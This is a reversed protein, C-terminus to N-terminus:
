NGLGADLIASVKVPDHGAFAINGDPDILVMFPIAKFNYDRSVNGFNEKSLQFQQWDMKEYEMAKRWAADEEDLSVAYIGLRDGYKKHLERVHPIAARCPGCWSAWFDVMTWRGKGAYESISHEVGDPAMAVFDTYKQGRVVKRAKDITANILAVREPSNNANLQPQIEDLEEASFVFPESLMRNWEMASVHYAPHKRIFAETAKSLELEATSYAQRLRENGAESKDRNEDWYLNYHAQRTAREYPELAARYEEFERQADGAKVTYYKRHNLEVTGVSFSPPLSDLHVANIEVPMNEVMLDMAHGISRENEQEPADIRIECMLPMAVSGTIVFKGDTVSSAPLRFWESGKKDDRNVLEVKHASTLGPINGTITFTPEQAIGTSMAMLAICSSIIRNM